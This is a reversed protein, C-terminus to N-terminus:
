IISRGLEFEDNIRDINNNRYIVADLIPCEIDNKKMEFQLSHIDKPFCTGGFGTKGDHGPVDMHSSNIRDDLSTINKIIDYNIKKKECYKNIENCLSVKTALFINKFLKIMEAERNYVVHLTDYLICNKEKSLKLISKMKNIVIDNNAGLVWHKSHYCDLKWNKETLFEPMFSVNLFDSTGCPVTSRLIINTNNQDIINKLKNIVDYVIDLYCEGNNKMPTPVCIFIIECERLKCINLDIPICKTPDIDYVYVKNQNHQIMSYTAKGVFGNGVIGIIM